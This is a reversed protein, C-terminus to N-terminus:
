SCARIMYVVAAFLVGLFMYDRYRREAPHHM